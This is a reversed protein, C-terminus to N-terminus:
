QVTLTGTMGPSHITCHFGYTGTATFMRCGTMAFDVHIGSDTISSSDAPSHGPFVDHISTTMFMVVQGQTITVTDPMYATGLSNISVTAAPTIGTCSTSVVTPPPSDIAKADPTKSSDSGCAACVALLATLSLRVM